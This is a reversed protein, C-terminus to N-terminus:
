ELAAPLLFIGSGIMNSTVLATSSGPGLPRKPSASVLERAPGMPIEAKPPRVALM